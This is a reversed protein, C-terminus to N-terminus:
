YLLHMPPLNASQYGVCATQGQRSQNIRGRGRGAGRQAAGRPTLSHTHSVACLADVVRGSWGDSESAARQLCAGAATEAEAGEAWAARLASLGAPTSVLSNGVAAPGVHFQLTKLAECQAADALSTLLTNALMLLGAAWQKAGAPGQVGGTSAGSSGGWRLAHQEVELVLRAANLMPEPREGGVCALAAADMSAVDGPSGPVSSSALAQITGLLAGAQKDDQIGAGCGPLTLALMTCAAPRAGASWTTLIHTLAAIFPPPFVRGAFRRSAEPLEPVVGLAHCACEVCALACPTENPHTRLAAGIAECLQSASGVDRALQVIAAQGAEQLEQLEPSPQPSDTGATALAKPLEQLAIGFASLSYPISQLAPGDVCWCVPQQNTINGPTTCVGLHGQISAKVSWSCSEGSAAAHAEM